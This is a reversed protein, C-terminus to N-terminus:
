VDIVHLHNQPALHLTQQSTDIEGTWFAPSPSPHDHAPL